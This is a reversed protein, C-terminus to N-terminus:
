CFDVDEVKQFLDVAANGFLKVNMDDHVVVGGMLRRLDFGPQRSMWAVMDVEGRRGRRPDILDFAPKCIQRSLFDLATDMSRDAVEFGIDFREDVSVVFIWFGVAPDFRCILDEGGDFSEAL